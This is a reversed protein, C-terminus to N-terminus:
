NYMELLALLLPYVWQYVDNQTICQYNERNTLLDYNWKQELNIPTADPQWAQLLYYLISCSSDNFTVVVNPNISVVAQSSETEFYLNSSSVSTCVPIAYVISRATANTSNFSISGQFTVGSADTSTSFYGQLYPNWIFGMTEIAPLTRLNPSSASSINQSKSSTFLDDNFAV